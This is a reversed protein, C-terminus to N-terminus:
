TREFDAVRELREHEILEALKSVDRVFRHESAHAQVAPAHEEADDRAVHQIQLDIVAVPAVVLPRAHLRKL